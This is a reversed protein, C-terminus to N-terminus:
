EKQTKHMKELNDLGDYAATKFLDALTPYNYVAQVFEDITGGIMMVHSAIHILESALEGIIHAGLLKKDGPSFVLKIMGSIDGIIQGRANDEYSGRGLLYPINRSKCEDETLGVMSIEPIAYVALPLIPSLREQNQQNFAHTIAIRAQQMSTAALAPFGIADGAAYINSVSTQYNENVLILGRDGLKVGAEELGLGQVNSQRGAAILAIDFEQAEGSKFTLQVHEDKVAISTMHENLLFKLGLKGLQRMLRDIIETDVFKLIGAQSEILTVQVGLASFISAYEVGIVGGGLVAMTKPIRKMQLITDSDYIWKHDFPIEPPHYPASGTAVLVVESSFEKNGKPSIVRITHADILKAAGHIRTIHHRDVNQSILRRENGVVIHERHMFERVSLNDKLSYDIGYLGRQQLGSFYIATERLTKSPVTGTNIGAGGLHEAREVLAVQKGLRAAQEAGKEGAPGSGIVILDYHEKM